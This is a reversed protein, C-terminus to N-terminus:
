SIHINIDEENNIAFEFLQYLIKLTMLSYLLFIEAETSSFIVFKMMHMLISPNFMKILFWLM